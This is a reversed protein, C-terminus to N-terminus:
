REWDDGLFEIRRSQARREIFDRFNGNNTLALGADGTLGGTHIGDLTSLVNDKMHEYDPSSNAGRSFNFLSFAIARLAVWNSIASIQTLRDLLHHNGEPIDAANFISEFQIDAWRSVLVQYVRIIQQMLEKEFGESHEICEKLTSLEFDTVEWKMGEAANRNGFAISYYRNECLETINSLVIPLSAKAADLKALRTKEMINFNSQIQRAVGFLALAAAALTVIHTIQESLHGRVVESTEDLLWFIATSAIFGLTIGLAIGALYNHKL